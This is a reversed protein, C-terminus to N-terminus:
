LIASLGEDRLGCNNLSLRKILNRPNKSSSLTCRIAHGHNQLYYNSLALCNNKIKTFISTMTVARAKSCNKSYEIIEQDFPTLGEDDDLVRNEGNKVVGYVHKEVELEEYMEIRDGYEESRRANSVAENKAPEVEGLIRKERASQIKGM